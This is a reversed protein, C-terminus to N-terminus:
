TKDIPLNERNWAMLGGKIQHLNKMGHADLSKVAAKTRMGSQCSIALKCGKNQAAIEEIQEIFNPGSLAVGQAGAPLGTQQWEDPQRVDIIVIEGNQQMQHAQKPSLAQALPQRLGLM